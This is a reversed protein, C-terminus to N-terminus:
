DARDLRNRRRPLLNPDADGGHLKLVKRRSAFHAIMDGDEQKKAITTDRTLM